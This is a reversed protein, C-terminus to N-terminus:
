PLYVRAWMESPITSSLTISLSLQFVGVVQKRLHGLSYSPPILSSCHSQIKGVRDRMCMRIWRKSAWHGWSLSLSSRISQVQPIGWFAHSGARLSPIRLVGDEAILQIQHCQQSSSSLLLYLTTPVFLDNAIVRSNITIDRGREWVTPMSGQKRHHAIKAKSHMRAASVNQWTVSGYCSLLSIM